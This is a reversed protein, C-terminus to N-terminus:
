FFLGRDVLDDQRGIAWSVPLFSQVNQASDAVTALYTLNRHLIQQYQLVEPAKGKSQFEQITQILSGNEDLMKQVTAPNAPPRGTGRPGFGVSM